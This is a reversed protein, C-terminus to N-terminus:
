ILLIPGEFLETFDAEKSTVHPYSENLKQAGEKDDASQFSREPNLCELEFAFWKSLAGMLPLFFTSFM